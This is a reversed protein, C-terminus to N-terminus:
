SAWDRLVTVVGESECASHIRRLGENFSYQAAVDKATALGYWRHAQATLNLYEVHNAKPHIESFLRVSDMAGLCKSVLTGGSRAMNHLIRITPKTKM